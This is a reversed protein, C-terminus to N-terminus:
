DINAIHDAARPSALQHAWVMVDVSDVAVGESIWRTALAEFDGMNALAEELVVEDFQNSVSLRIEGERIKDMRDQMLIEVKLKLNTISM